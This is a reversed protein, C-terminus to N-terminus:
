GWIAQAVFWVAAVAAGVGLLTTGLFAMWILLIAAATVVGIFLRDGRTTVIPLFGKRGFDPKRVGLVGLVAIAGFLAAFFVVSQWTWYMWYFM